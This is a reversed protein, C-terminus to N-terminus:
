KTKIYEIQYQKYRGNLYVAKAVTNKKVGISSAFEELSNYVTSVGDVIVRVAPAVRKPVHSAPRDKRLDIMDTIPAEIDVMYWAEYGHHALNIGNNLHSYILHPKICLYDAAAPVSSFLFLQEKGVKRVVVGKNGPGCNKGISNKNLIWDEGKRKVEFVDKITYQRHLGRKLHSAVKRQNVGIFQSAHGISRFESVEGTELNRVSVEINENRLGADYAHDINEKCTCWELNIVSPNTKVGDRHNVMVAEDSKHLFTEAVVTHLYSKDAFGRIGYYGSKLLVAPIPVASSNVMCVGNPDVHLNRLEPHRYFGRYIVSPELENRLKRSVRLIEM